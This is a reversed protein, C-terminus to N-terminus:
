HPASVHSASQPHDAVFQKIQELSNYWDLVTGRDFINFAAAAGSMFAARARDVQEQPEGGALMMPACFDNWYEDITM